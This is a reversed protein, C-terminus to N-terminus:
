EVFMDREFDYPNELIEKKMLAYMSPFEKFVDHINSYSITGITCYSCTELLFNSETDFIVSVDGM